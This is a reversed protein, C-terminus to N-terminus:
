YIKGKKQFIENVIYYLYNELFRQLFNVDKYKNIVIKLFIFLKQLIM